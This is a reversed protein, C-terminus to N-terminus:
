DARRVATLHTLACLWDGDRLVFVDTTWEDSEISAGDLHATNVVRVSLVATDGYVRVRAAGETRMASHSLTGTRVVELFRTGETIGTEGVFVWDQTVFQAIRDADNAVIAAIWDDYRGTLAATIADPSTTTM